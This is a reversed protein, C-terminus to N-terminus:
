FRNGIVDCSVRRLLFLLSVILSPLTDRHEYIRYATAIFGLSQEVTPLKITVTLPATNLPASIPRKNIVVGPQQQQAVSGIGNPVVTAHVM